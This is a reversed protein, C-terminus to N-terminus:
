EHRALPPTQIYITSKAEIFGMEGARSAIKTLASLSLLKEQLLLNQRKTERIETQLKSLEIGATSIHNSAVVQVVSLLIVIGILFGLVLRTRKM